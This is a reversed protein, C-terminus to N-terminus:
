RAHRREGLAWRGWLFPTFALTMLVILWLRGQWIAYNAVLESWSKHDIYHGFLFEFSVTLILLTASARVLQSARKGALPHLLYRTMIVIIAIGLVASIIEAATNGLLPKIAVERFIGNAIMAIAILVWSGFLRLMTM